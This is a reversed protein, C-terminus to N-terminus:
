PKLIVKVSELSGEALDHILEPGDELPAITEILTTVDFADGRRIAEISRGFEDNFCYAGRVTLERTVVQQMNLEVEPQSNGIWTVHGGTRVAALSQKVAATVGVAEIVAHAGVGGTHAQVVEVPDQEAVNVVLDAGLRRAMELRHASRDSVIITGAGRRRTWLLALLGITGAGIILVTDMLAFPTLNVAHMAVALPEVLAGQEWAMEAPLAYLMQQPVRVAEAYAGNLSIGLGSRNLCINPRGARCNACTGCTLLPQVVVRDGVQYAQVQAGVSEVVGCFEHGMVIPPTRRGTTGMFGHVDSGCIGVAQVAVVVDTAGATPAEIQRLPMQWPGEYVLARM